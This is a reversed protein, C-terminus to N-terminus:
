VFSFLFLLSSIHDIVKEQSPKADTLAGASQHNQNQQSSSPGTRSADNAM